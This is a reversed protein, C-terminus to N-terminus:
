KDERNVIGLIRKNLMKSNEMRGLEDIEFRDKEGGKYKISNEYNKSSRENLVM